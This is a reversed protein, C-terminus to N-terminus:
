NKKKDNKEHKVMRIPEDWLDPNAEPSYQHEPILEQAGREDWLDPNAEPSYAKVGPPIPEDDEVIVYGPGSQKPQKRELEEVRKNITKMM